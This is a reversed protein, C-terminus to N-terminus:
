PHLDKLKTGFQAVEIKKTIKNHHDMLFTITIEDLDDFVNTEFKTKPFMFSGGPQRALPTRYRDKYFTVYGGTGTGTFVKKGTPM